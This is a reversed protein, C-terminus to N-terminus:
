VSDPRPRAGPSRAQRKKANTGGSEQARAALEGRLRTTSCGFRKEVAQDLSVVHIKPDGAMRGLAAALADKRMMDHILLIGGRKSHVRLNGTLFDLEAGQERDTDGSGGHWMVNLYGLRALAQEHRSRADAPAETLYPIGGPPRSFLLPYPRRAESYGREALLETHRLVHTKWQDRITSLSLHEGSPRGFVRRHLADFDDASRALLALEVMVHTIRYQGEIYDAGYSGGRLALRIDHNYTHSGVAHGERIMREVIAYTRKNIAAGVLFFTAPMHHEALLDLIPPTLTANPGDDFTLAVEGEPWADSSYFGPARVGESLAALCSASPELSEARLPAHLTLLGVLVSFGFALRAKKSV